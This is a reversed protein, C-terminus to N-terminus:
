RNEFQEVIAAPIRGRDSVELGQAKAWERIQRLDTRSTQTKTQPSTTKTRRAGPSRTAKIGADIYPRLAKEFAARNKDSLDITYETGDYAFRVEAADQSGDLDDVIHTM